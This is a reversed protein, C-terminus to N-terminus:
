CQLVLNQAVLRIVNRMHSAFRPQALAKKAWGEASVGNQFASLALDRGRSRRILCM